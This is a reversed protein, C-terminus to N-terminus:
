VVPALRWAGRVLPLRALHIHLLVACLPKMGEGEQKGSVERIDIVQFVPGYAMPVALGLTWLGDYSDQPGPECPWSRLVKQEQHHM